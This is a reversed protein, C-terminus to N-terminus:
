FGLVQQHRKIVSEETFPSIAQKILESPIPNDIAKVIAESMAKPDHMPILYGYKGGELVEEPGTPCNTSVTTCGAAMAEVLVNPLGEVYSSLVFVDAKSFFKLPNVQFGLLRVCDSLDKELILSELEGRLPGEGLIALRVPFNGNLISVANILDSFGKEPALRGASIVLPVSNGNVWEDEVKESLKKPTDEDIILNYHKSLESCSKM